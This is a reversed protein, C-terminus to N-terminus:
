QINRLLPRQERGSKRDKSAMKWAPSTQDNKNLSIIFIRPCLYYFVKLPYYNWTHKCLDYIYVKFVNKKGQLAETFRHVGLFDM